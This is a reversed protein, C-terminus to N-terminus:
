RDGTCLQGANVIKDQIILLLRALGLVQVMEWTLSEARLALTKNQSVWLDYQENRCSM